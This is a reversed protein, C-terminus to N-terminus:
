AARHGRRRRTRTAPVERREEAAAAEVEAAIEPLEPAAVEVIVDPEETVAAAPESLAPLGLPQGSLVARTIDNAPEVWHASDDRHLSVLNLLARWWRLLLPM